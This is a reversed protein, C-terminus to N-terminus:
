KGSLCGVDSECALFWEGEVFAEVRVHHGEPAEVIAYTPTEEQLVGTFWGDIYMRWDDVSRNSTITQRRMGPSSGSQCWDSCNFQLAVRTPTATATPSATATPVRRNMRNRAVMPLYVHKTSSEVPTLTPTHTATPTSTTVTATSTATPTPSPPPTSTHTPTATPPEDTATSTPSATTATGTPSAPPSAPTPTNTRTPTPTSPDGPHFHMLGWGNTGIWVDGGPGIDIVEIDNTVLPSNAPTWSVWEAGDVTLKIGGAAKDIVYDEAQGDRNVDMGGRSTGAWVTGAEDVAITSGWGDGEFARASWEGDRLWNVVAPVYPWHSIVDGRSTDATGWTGVWVTGDPGVAISQAEGAADESGAYSQLGEATTYMAWQGTVHDYEGVGGGRTGSGAFYPIGSVWLRGQDCDPAIETILDSPIAPYRFPEWWTDNSPDHLAGATDVVNIGSGTNDQLSGLGIWLEQACGPSLATVTNSQLGASAGAAEEATRVTWQDGDFVSLGGDTYARESSEWTVERTGFWVNDGDIALAVVNDSALGAWPRRGDDDTDDRTFQSWTDDGPDLTGQTNLLLAGAGYRRARRNGTAVWVQNEWRTGAQGFAIDTIYNSALGAAATTLPEEFASQALKFPSIGHAQGNRGGTGMWLMEAGAVMAQVRDGALGSATTLPAGAVPNRDNWTDDNRNRLTGNHDLVSVGLGRGSISHYSSFWVTNAWQPDDPPGFAIADVFNSALGDATIFRDRDPRLTVADQDFALAGRGRMAAWVTGNADMRLQTVVCGVQSNEECNWTRWDDDDPEATGAHDLRSIGGHAQIWRGPINETPPEFLWHQRTAVWVRNGAVPLIDAINDSALGLIREGQEITLTNELTYTHLWVDDAPDLTGQTDLRTLGGGVYAEAERDWYQLTGIWIDGAEDVAVATVRDGPLRGATNQRTYTHWIDDSKDPTNNDALVSLGHDTALWKHGRDDIAIDYVTNGALGDQPKLFQVYSGGTTDWRVLGGARTGAWLVDGELELTLIDDGNAYTYWWGTPPFPPEEQATSPAPQLPLSLLLLIIFGPLLREIM